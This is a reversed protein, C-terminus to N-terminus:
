QVQFRVVVENLLPAQRLVRGGSATCRNRWVVRAFASRALVLSPHGEDTWVEDVDVPPIPLFHYTFPSALAAATALPTGGLSRGASLGMRCATHLVIHVCTMHALVDSARATIRTVVM